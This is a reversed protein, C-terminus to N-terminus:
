PCTDFSDLDSRQDSPFQNKNKCYYSYWDFLQAKDWFDPGGPPGTGDPPLEVFHGNRVQIMLDAGYIKHSSPVVPSILGHDSFPGMSDLQQKLCARTLNQGCASAAEAFLEAMGWGPAGWSGPAVASPEHQRLARVYRDLEPFSCPPVPVGHSDFGSCREFPINPLTIFAGDTTSDQPFSPLYSTFTPSFVKPTVGANSMADALKINSNNEMTSYVALPGASDPCNHHMANAYSQFNNDIVTTVADYCITISGGSAQLAAAEFAWANAKSVLAEGLSFMAIQKIGYKRDLWPIGSAGVGILRKQLQGPVGYTYPNESRQYTLPFGIDVIKESGSVKAVGTDSDPASVSGVFAFVHQEDALEQAFQLDKNPDGADDREILTVKRGCIGGEDNIMKFYADVADIAPQFQGPLAGTKAAVLGIKIENSSVGTDTAGGGSCNSQILQQGNSTTVIPGNSSGANSSPGITQGGITQLGGSAPLQDGGPQQALPAVRAGCAVVLMALTAVAVVLRKNM